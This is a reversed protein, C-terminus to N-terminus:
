SEFHQLQYNRTQQWCKSSSLWPKVGETQYLHRAYALNGELTYIDFGMEKAKTGHYRENIQMIGIDKPNVDGRLVSGDVDLQRYTSECFAIEALVPTDAFYDRVYGEVLGRRTQDMYRVASMATQDIPFATPSTSQASSSGQGTVVSTFAVLGAAIGTFTM